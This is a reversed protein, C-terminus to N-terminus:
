QDTLKEQKRYLCSGCMYNLVDKYAYDSGYFKKPQGELHVSYGGSRFYVTGCYHDFDNIVVTGVQKGNRLIVDLECDFATAPAAGCLLMTALLLALIHRKM